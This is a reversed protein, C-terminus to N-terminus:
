DVPLRPVTSRIPATSDPTHWFCMSVSVVSGRIAEVYQAVAALLPLKAQADVADRLGNRNEWLFRRDATSGSTAIDYVTHHGKPSFPAFRPDRHWVHPAWPESAMDSLDAALERLLGTEAHHRRIADNGTTRLDDVTVPGANWWGLVDTTTVESLLAPNAYIGKRELITATRKTFPVTAPDLDDPWSASLILNTDV